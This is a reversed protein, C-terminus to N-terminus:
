VLGHLEDVVHCLVAVTERLALNPTPEVHAAGDPPALHVPLKPRVRQLAQHRLLVHHTIMESIFYHHRPAQSITENTAGKGRGPRAM